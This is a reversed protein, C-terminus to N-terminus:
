NREFNVNGNMCPGYISKSVGPTGGGFDVEPRIWVAQADCNVPAPDDLFNLRFLRRPASALGRSFSYTWVGNPNTGGPGPPDLSADFDRNADYVQEGAAAPALVAALVGIVGILNRLRRGLRKVAEEKAPSLPPFPLRRWRHA